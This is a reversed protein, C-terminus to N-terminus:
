PARLSGLFALLAQRDDDDLLRFAAASTEAEGSHIEIAEKLTAARGDHFYPASDGIGWLPPTKWEQQPNTPREAFSAVFPASSYDVGGVRTDFIRDPTAIQADSTEDGMDHLLLDSYVGRVWGLDPVHCVSCKVRDFVRKGTEIQAPFVAEGTKEVPKPLSHVFSTLAALQTQTLDFRDKKRGGARGVPQTVDIPIEHERFGRVTLGLEIACASATFDDLTAIQGRWGFWGEDGDATKPVRGTIGSLNEAQEIAIRRRIADGGDRRFKDLLGAGWLAPTNRQFLELRADGMQKRVPRVTPLASDGGMTHIIGDRWADYAVTDEPAGIAFRHLVKVISDPRFGPHLTQASKLAPFISFELSPRTVIGLMLVNSDLDGAGGVGGQYHCKVCSTENFVPGIGNGGSALKFDEPLRDPRAFNTTFLQLGTEVRKAPLDRVRDQDQDGAFSEVGAVSLSATLWVEALLKAISVTRARPKQIVSEPTLETSTM